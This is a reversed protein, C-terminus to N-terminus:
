TKKYTDMMERLVDEPIPNNKPSIGPYRWASIITLHENQFLKKQLLLVTNDINNSVVNIRRKRKKLYMTWVEQRWVKKGDIVKPSVAQMVAITGNGAIGKEVRDPRRIIGLVKQKSLGYYKMKWESHQTWLYEIM